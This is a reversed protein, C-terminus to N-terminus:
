LSIEVQWCLGLKRIILVSRNRDSHISITSCVQEPNKPERRTLQRSPFFGFQDGGSLAIGKKVEQLDLFYAVQASVFHPGRHDPLRELGHLLLRGPHLIWQELGASKAGAM